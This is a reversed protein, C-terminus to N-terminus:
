EYKSYILIDDLFVIFFKDLYNIFIGNMLCMFIGPENSLGCPVVVFDYHGYRRIFTKKNIYEEKIIVYHYGKRLHIQSLINADRLHYFLYDIRTFPYKKKMTVKNLQKLNICLRLTGDWKKFILMPSGWPSVSPLVYRKNLIEDLHM